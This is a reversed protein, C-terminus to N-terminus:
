QNSDEYPYFSPQGHEFNRGGQKEFQRHQPKDPQNDAYNPHSNKSYGM